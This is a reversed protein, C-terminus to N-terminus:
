FGEIKLQIPKGYRSVLMMPTKPMEYANMGDASSMKAMWAPSLVNFRTRVFLKDNLVWAEASSGEVNLKRAGKPAVGDLVSLLVPNAQDPMGVGQIMPVANPGLGQIRLDVRYDVVKQGPILTLMVPTDLKELVVALNGYTYASRAQVMLTNDKQNWKIDFATPNGLDYAQIPWPAGSSDIFVLSSVFGRALRIAPPTSGPALSVVMSSSTPQPPADYAEAATARQTDDLANRLQKIQEPTLPFADQLVNKFATNSMELMADASSAASDDINTVLEPNNTLLPETNANASSPEPNPAALVSTAVVLALTLLVKKMLKLKVVRM